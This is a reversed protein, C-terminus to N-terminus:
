FDRALVLADGSDYHEPRLARASFGLADYFARAREDDVMVTLRLSRQGAARLRECLRELQRTARGERRYAPAVALEALYAERTEADPLAVAYGVPEDDADTSVLAIAADTTLVDLLDPWPQDLTALQIARLRPRDAPAVPRIM